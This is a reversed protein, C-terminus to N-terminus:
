NPKKQADQTCASQSKPLKWEEKIKKKAEQLEQEIERLVQAGAVIIAVITPLLLWGLIVQTWGFLEQWTGIGCESPSKILTFFALHMRISDAIKSYEFGFHGVWIILWGFLLDGILLWFIYVSHKLFVMFGRITKFKLQERLKM